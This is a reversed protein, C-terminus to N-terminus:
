AVHFDNPFSMVDAAKNTKLKRLANKMEQASVDLIPTQSDSVINQM